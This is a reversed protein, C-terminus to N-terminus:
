SCRLLMSKDKPAPHVKQCREQAFLKPRTHLGDFLAAGFDICFGYAHHRSNREERWRALQSDEGFGQFILSETM